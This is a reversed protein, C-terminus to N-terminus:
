HRKRVRLRLAVERTGDGDGRAVNGGREKGTALVKRYALYWWDPSRSGQGRKRSGLM